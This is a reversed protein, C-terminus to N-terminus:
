FYLTVQQGNHKEILTNKDDTLLLFAGCGACCVPLMASEETFCCQRQIHCLDIAQTGIWTCSSSSVCGQRICTHMFALKQCGVHSHLFPHWTITSHPCIVCPWWFFWKSLSFPIFFPILLAPSPHLLLLPHQPLFVTYEYCCRYKYGGKLSPLPPHPKRQAKRVTKCPLSISHSSFPLEPVLSLPYRVPTSLVSPPLSPQKQTNIHAESILSLIPPPLLTSLQSFDILSLCVAREREIHTLSALQHAFLFLCSSWLTLYTGSDHQKYFRQTHSLARMSTHM